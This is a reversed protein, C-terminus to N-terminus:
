STRKLVMRNLGFRDMETIGNPRGNGITDWVLTLSEGDISYVGQFTATDDQNRIDIESYSPRV